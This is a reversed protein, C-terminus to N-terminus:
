GLAYVEENLQSLWLKSAFSLLHLLLPLASGVGGLGLPLGERTAPFMEEPVSSGPSSAGAWPQPTRRGDLPQSLRLAWLAVSLLWSSTRLDLGPHPDLGWPLPDWEPDQVGQSWQSSFPSEGRPAKQARCGCTRGQSTRMQIRNQYYVMITFILAQTLETLGELSDDFGSAM